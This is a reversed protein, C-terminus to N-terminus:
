DFFRLIKHLIMGQNTSWISFIHFFELNRDVLTV